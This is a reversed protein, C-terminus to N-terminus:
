LNLALSFKFLMMHYGAIVGTVLPVRSQRISLTKVIPLLKDPPLPKAHQLSSLKFAASSVVGTCVVRTAKPHIRPSLCHCQVRVALEPRPQMSTVSRRELASLTPGGPVGEM